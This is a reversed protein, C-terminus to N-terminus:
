DDLIVGGNMRFVENMLKFPYPYVAYKNVQYINPLMLFCIDNISLGEEIIEKTAPSNSISTNMGYGIEGVSYYKKANFNFSNVDIIEGFLKNRM